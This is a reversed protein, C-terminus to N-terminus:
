NLFPFSINRQIEAIKTSPQVPVANIPEIAAHEEKASVVWKAFEDKSVVKVEIPMFGHNTGCLESCQGYFTGTRTAKFWTENLRGPVADMKVGFAPVAWAHIVDGATVLVRIETDVPVVVPTDTSLLRVQDKTLESSDIMTADFSFGGQDPYEYNWYFQNGTVKLTMDANPARDQFYLLKMSPVVMVVLIVIPIATWVVELFANHTRSSPEPNAKANFKVIVYAMLLTVFGAILIITILLTDHFSIIGDMIPSASDQYGMQWPQPGDEAASISAYGVVVTLSIMLGAAIKSFSM